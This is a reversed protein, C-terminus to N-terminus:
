SVVEGHLNIDLGEKEVKASVRLGITMDILKLIVFTAFGCWGITMLIGQFQIGLQKMGPEVDALIPVCFLGTLLAGVIGGVGHIGFVDYSDDYGLAKKVVTSFFWCAAGAVLGIILAGMPYVYGSAPTIAVLGAVAGGTLGIVSPKGKTFWEIFMWSLAAAATAIQTVLMAMGASENAGYASGANFGFWGVWLLSAGVMTYILNNPAWTYDDKTRKGVVIAAVLGAIGCNIHVVTGGAFDLIGKESLVGGGWVWYCIPAYVVVSWIAMFILTSSFKIREAFSGAILATTIIAFTAQFVVDVGIPLGAGEPDFEFGAFMFNALGGYYPTSGESYAISYGIICWTITVVCTGAFVHMLTSLVNQKRSLGGYFLAVGPITMLLVLCTSTLMWANDGAIQGPTPGEDALVGLPTLVLMLLPLILSSGKLNKLM